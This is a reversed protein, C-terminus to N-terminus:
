GSHVAIGARAISFGRGNALTCTVGTTASSSCQFPGLRTSQGYALAVENEPGNGLGCNAGSCPKVAGTATLTVTAPPTITQCFAADPLGPLGLDLECEINGSPSKFFQEQSGNSNVVTPV